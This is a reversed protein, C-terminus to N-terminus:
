LSALIAYCKGRNKTLGAEVRDLVYLYRESMDIKRKLMDNTIESNAPVRCYLPLIWRRCANLIYHNQHLHRGAKNSFSLYAALDSRDLSDKEDLLSGILQQVSEKSRTSPCRDCVWTLERPLLHGSPCKRCRIADLFTGLETPDVCRRCRCDFYWNDKLQPRRLLSCIHLPVYTISLEQNQAVDVSAIVGAFTAGVISRANPVCSHSLLSTLPYVARVGCPGSRIEVNNVEAVGVAHSM